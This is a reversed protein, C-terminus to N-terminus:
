FLHCRRGVDWGLYPFRWISGLGVASGASVLVFGIFNTFEARKRSM